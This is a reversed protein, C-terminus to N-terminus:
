ISLDIELNKLIEAEEETLKELVYNEIDYKGGEPRGIGIRLRYFENSGIKEIIDEAGHHGASSMGAKFVTKGFKLDADDHVVILDELDLNYFSLLKQVSDGSKNMFTQPKAILYKDSKAILANFKREFSWTLNEKDAISEVFIFGANHRTNLYKSTPNGLGVILKM